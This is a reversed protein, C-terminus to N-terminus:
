IASENAQVLVDGFDIPDHRGALSGSGLIGIATHCIASWWQFSGLLADHNGQAHLYM